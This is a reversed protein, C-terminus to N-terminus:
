CFWNNYSACWIISSGYRELASSSKERRSRLERIKGQIEMEKEICMSREKDNNPHLCKRQIKNRLSVLESFKGDFDTLRLTEKDRLEEYSMTWESFSTMMMEIIGDCLNIFTMILDSVSQPNYINEIKALGWDMVSKLGKRKRNADYMAVDRNLLETVISDAGNSAGVCMHRPEKINCPAMYAVMVSFFVREIKM